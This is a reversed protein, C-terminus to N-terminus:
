LPQERPGEDARETLRRLLERGARAQRDIEQMQRRGADEAMATARRVHETLVERQAEVAEDLRRLRGEHAVLERRLLDRQEALQRQAEEHSAAEEELPQFRAEVRERLSRVQDVADTILAQLEVTPLLRTLDDEVRREAEHLANFRAEFASVELRLDPIAAATAAHEQDDRRVGAALADLRRDLTEIAAEFSSDGRTIASRDAALARQREEISDLRDEIRALGSEVREVVTELSHISTADRHQERELAGTYDRRIAAEADVGGELAAVQTQLRRVQDLSTEHRITRGNLLAVEEHLQVAGAQEARLAASLTEVEHTLADIRALARQLQQEIWVTSTLPEPM